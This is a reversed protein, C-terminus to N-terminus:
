ILGNIIWSLVVSDLLFDSAEPFEKRAKQYLRNKKTESMGNLKDKALNAKLKEENERMEELEKEKEKQLEAKAKEAQKSIDQQYESLDFSEELSRKLFGGPNLVKNKKFRFHTYNIHDKLVIIDFKQCLTKILSKAIKMELLKVKVDEFLADHFVVVNDAPLEKEPFASEPNMVSTKQRTQKKPLNQKNSNQKYQLQHPLSESKSTNNQYDHLSTVKSFTKIGQKSDSVKQSQIKQFKNTMKPLYKQISNVDPEKPPRLYYRNNKYERCVSILDLDELIQIAKLFTNESINCDSCATKTSPFAYHYSKHIRSTLYSIVTFQTPSLYPQWKLIHTPLKVYSNAEQPIIIDVPNNDKFIEKTAHM